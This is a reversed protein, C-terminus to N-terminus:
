PRLTNGLNITMQFYFLSICLFLMGMYGLAQIRSNMSEKFIEFLWESQPINSIDRTKYFRYDCEVDEIQNKDGFIIQYPTSM